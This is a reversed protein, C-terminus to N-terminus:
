ENTPIGILFGTKADIKWCLQTVNHQMVWAKPLTTCMSGSGTKSVSYREKGISHETTHSMSEFNIGIVKLKELLDLPIDSVTLGKLNGTQIIEEKNKRREILMRLQRIQENM